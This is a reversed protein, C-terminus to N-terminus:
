QALTHDILERWAAAIRPPSFDSARERARAAYHARLTSDRSLRILGKALDREPDSLPANPTRDSPPPLPCLIGFPALELRQTKNEPDSEPALIERPGSPCDAALVPRGLVMAELLANPFGEARSPLVFIGSRAIWPHPNTHFGAIAVRREIGLGRCATELAARLPGEGVIVLASEAPLESIAAAFARLLAMHGKAPVLRGVTVICAPGLLAAADGTPEDRAQTAIVPDVSNPIVSIRRRGLRFRRRFAAASERSNFHLVSAQPLLRRYGALVLARKLGSKDELAADIQKRVSLIREAGHPTLLNLINAREMFSVIVGISELSVLSRLRRSLSLVALTKRTTSSKVSGSGLLRIRAAIAAEADPTAALRMERDADICLLRPDAGAQLLTRVLELAM